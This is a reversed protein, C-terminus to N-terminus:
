DNELTLHDHSKHDVCIYFDQGEDKFIGPVSILIETESVETTVIYRKRELLRMAPRLHPDDYFLINERHMAFYECAIEFIGLAPDGFFTLRDFCRECYTITSKM